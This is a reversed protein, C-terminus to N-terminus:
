WLIKPNLASNKIDAGVMTMWQDVLANRQNDNATGLKKNVDLIAQQTAKDTIGYKDYIQQFNGNMWAERDGQDYALHYTLSLLGSPPQDAM